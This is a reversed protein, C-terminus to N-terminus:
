LSTLNAFLCQLETESMNGGGTTEDDVWGKYGGSAGGEMVGSIGGYLKEQLQAKRREGARHLAREMRDMGMVQEHQVREEVQAMEQAHKAEQEQQLGRIYRGMDRRDNKSDPGKTRSVRREQLEKIHKKLAIKEAVHQKRLLNREKRATLPGFDEGDEEECVAAAGANDDELLSDVNDSGDEESDDGEAVVAVRRQKRAPAVKKGGRSDLNRRASMASSSSKGGTAAAGSPGAMLGGSTSSETTIGRRALVAGLTAGVANKSVGAIGSGSHIQRLLRSEKEATKIVNKTKKKQKAKLCRGIKKGM